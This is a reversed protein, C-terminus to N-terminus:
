IGLADLIPKLEGYAASKTFDFNHSAEVLYNRAKENDGKYFYAVGLKIQTEIDDPQMELATEYLTIAEDLHGSDAFFGAVTRPEYYTRWARGLQLATEIEKYGTNPDGTAFALLGYYFHADAVKPDLSLAYKVLDIAESNKGELSKTKAM